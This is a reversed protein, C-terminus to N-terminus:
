YRSPASGVIRGRKQQRAIERKMTRRIRHLRRYLTQRSMGCRAAIHAITECSSTTPGQFYWLDVLTKDRSTLASYGAVIGEIVSALFNLYRDEEKAIIIRLQAPEGQGTLHSPVSGWDFDPTLLVDEIFRVQACYDKILGDFNFLFRDIDKDTLATAAPIKM